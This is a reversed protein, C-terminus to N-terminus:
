IFTYCVLRLMNYFLRIQRQSHSIFATTGVLTQMALIVVQMAIIIVQMVLIVVQMDLIIVQMALIVVQMTLIVVQTPLIVVQMYQEKSITTDKMLRKVQRRSQVLKRIEVPLIGPPLNSDPIDVSISSNDRWYLLCALIVGVILSLEYNVLVHDIM